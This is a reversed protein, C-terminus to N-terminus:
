EEGEVFRLCEMFFERRNNLSAGKLANELLELDRSDYYMESNIFHLAQLNM